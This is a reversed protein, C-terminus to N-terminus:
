STWATAASSSVQPTLGQDSARTLLTDIAKAGEDGLDRTFENVYLAIHRDVVDREMEQAHELV